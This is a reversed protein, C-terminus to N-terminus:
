SSSPGRTRELVFEELRAHVGDGGAFVSSLERGALPITHESIVGGAEAVLLNGAAVDWRKVDFEYFGDFRGCATWALDLAAAGVRRVDRVVGLLEALVHGQGVRVQSDYAFGTAILAREFAADTVSIRDGNLWAGQGRAATFTEDRSPDHIAAVVLGEGDECAISVCWSPIGYLYNVTGDLPDVVWTRGSSGTHGAEEEALVGDEPCLEALGDTILREAAHDADSVPDTESTKTRVGLSRGSAYDLLLEGADHALRVAVDLLEDTM